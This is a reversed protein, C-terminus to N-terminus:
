RMASARPTTAPTMMALHIALHHLEVNEGEDQPREPEEDAVVGATLEEAGPLEPLDMLELVAVVRMQPTSVNM